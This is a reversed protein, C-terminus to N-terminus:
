NLSTNKIRRSATEGCEGCDTNSFHGSLKKGCSCVFGVQRAPSGMVLSHPEVPKSVVSGAAVMASTGIDAGPCIVAGAGISAGRRVTTTVLWNSQNSYRQKSHAMRPSRPYQDNTFIVGPGIFVDDEITIGSWILVGNKITVNNGIIADNEIFAHDGINCHDGVTAGAMVHAFAWVNTEAGIAQTDDVLAKPHIM